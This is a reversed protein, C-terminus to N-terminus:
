IADDTQLEVARKLKVEAEKTISVWIDRDLTKNRRIKIGLQRLIRIVMAGGHLNQDEERKVVM